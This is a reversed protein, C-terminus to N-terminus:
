ADLAEDYTDKVTKDIAKFLRKGARSWAQRGAIAGPHTVMAFGGPLKLAKRRRPRVTYGGRRGTDAIAWAGAQGGAPHFEVNCRTPWADVDAKVGLVKGFMRPADRRMAAVGVRGMARGAKRNAAKLDRATDRTLKEFTPGSTTITFEV